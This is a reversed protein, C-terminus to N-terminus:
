YLIFRGLVPVALISFSPLVYFPDLSSVHSQDISPISTPVPIQSDSTTSNDEPIVPESYVPALPDLNSVHSQDISPISTPVTNPFLSPEMSPADSPIDSTGYDPIPLESPVPISLNSTALNDEPILPESSETVPSDSTTTTVEPLSPEATVDTNSTEEEDQITPDLLEVEGVVPETIVLMEKITDDFEARNSNMSYRCYYEWNDGNDNKNKKSFIYM